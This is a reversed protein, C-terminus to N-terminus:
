LSSNEQIILRQFATEFDRSSINGKPLGYARRCVIMQLEMPLVAVLAFFRIASCRDRRIDWDLCEQDHELNRRVRYYGDCLGVTLAFLGTAMAPALGLEVRLQMRVLSPNEEYNGLLESVARNGRVDAVEKATYHGQLNPESLLSIEGIRLPKGSALLRKVKDIGGEYAAWWLPTRRTESILTLDVKPHELLFALTTAAKPNSSLCCLAVPTLSDKCAQNVVIHPHALLLKVVECLGEFCAVHLFTWRESDPNAWNINIEPHTDLFTAFAWPSSYLKAFLASEM